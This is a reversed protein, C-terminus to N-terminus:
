NRSKVLNDAIKYFSEEINKGTLASTEIYELNFERGVKM